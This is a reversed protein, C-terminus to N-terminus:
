GAAHAAARSDHVSLVADFASLGFTRRLPGPPCIVALRRNLGALTRHASLLLDLGTSDMFATGALDVWVESAGTDVADGIADALTGETALDLEGRASLVTRRGIRAVSVVLGDGLSSASSRTEAIPTV